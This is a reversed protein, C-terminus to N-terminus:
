HRVTAPASSELCASGNVSSHSSRTRTLVSTSLQATSLMCVQLGTSRTAQQVTTLAADFVQACAVSAATECPRMQQACSL